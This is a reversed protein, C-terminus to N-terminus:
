GKQLDRLIRSFLSVGIASLQDPFDYDPSHLAPHQRGAGLGFLAGPYKATFHGFDESWPFPHDPHEIQLGLAGAAGEIIGVVEQNNSTSPFEETWKVETNLGYAKGVGRALDSCYISLREVVEDRTARLTAMIVARGPSTGFAVEGLRAHIVTVKAGEYLDTRNQPAALFAQVLQAMALTPNNGKLPQGAHSTQGELEVIMGRSASSFVGRRSVVTGLPFGPLNHLALVMDPELAAYRPDSLIRAAGEGTEEAPQFLLVVRGQQPRNQELVAALGAVITMHGDHGCKHSVGPAHSGHEISITEDIPLGDLDARILVTKGPQKGNYVAALGHGGIRDVLEDPSYRSLCERVMKATNKENGSIEAARHLDRRLSLLDQTSASDISFETPSNM